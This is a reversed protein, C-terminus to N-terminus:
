LAESIHLQTRNASPSLRKFRWWFPSSLLKRNKLVLMKM